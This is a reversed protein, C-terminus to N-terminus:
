IDVENNFVDRVKNLAVKTEATTEGLLSAIEQAVRMQKEIVDQTIGLTRKRLDRIEEKRVEDTTIDTLVILTAERSEMPIVSMRMHLSDELFSIKEWLFGDEKSIHNYIKELPPYTHGTHATLEGPTIGFYRSFSMNAELVNNEDDLILIANPSNEFIENSIRETCKKVYHICMDKHSMGQHISIAKERCTSYGCGGCNLEDERSRKELSILIEKIRAESPLDPLSRKDKFGTSFDLEEINDGSHEPARESSLYQRLHQVRAFTSSAVTSGSPGGLCSKRCASVEICGETINGEIIEKFVEMCEDVGDVKIHTLKREELTDMIGQLIGGTLPYNKGTSSGYRDVHSIEEDHYNIGEETLWQSIEDFTLVADIAGKYKKSLSECKKSICPGLFVVSEDPRRSKLLRGHSIMPSTFPMLRPILEPFYREILLVVSPCCTTIFTTDTSGSIHDRYLASTLDAGVATEEIIHFGLKRLASIFKDSSEYFGRFSPAISINVKKGSTILNKVYELDSHINRANQPCISFCQGCAICKDAIIHAQNDEVKIAKVQCRRVCKYCQHCNAESFNMINM